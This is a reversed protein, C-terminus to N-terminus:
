TTRPVDDRRGNEAPLPPRRRSQCTRGLAPDPGDYRSRAHQHLWEVVDAPCSREDWSACLPLEAPGRWPLEILQGARLASRVAVRPLLSAGLGHLVGSRVSELSGLQVLETGRRGYRHLNQELLDRYICGRVSVLYWRSSSREAAITSVLAIPEIGVQLNRTKGAGAMDIPDGQPDPVCHYTALHVSGIGIREAIEKRSLVDITPRLQPFSQRLGVLLGSLWQRAVSETVVMRLPRDRPELGAIEVGAADLHSVASQAHHLAVEGAPTLAVSSGGTRVLLLQGLEKELSQLQYTVTSRACGIEEAAAALSGLRAVSLFTRVAKLDM